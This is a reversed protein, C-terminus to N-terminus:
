RPAETEKAPRNPGDQPGWPTDRRFDASPRRAARAEVDVRLKREGPHWYLYPANQGYWEFVPDGDDDLAKEPTAARLDELARELDTLRLLRGALWARDGKEPVAARWVLLTEVMRRKTGVEEGPPGSRVRETLLSAGIRAAEKLPLDIAPAGADVELAEAFARAQQLPKFTDAPPPRSPDAQERLAVATGTDLGLVELRVVAFLRVMWERDQLAAAAPRPDGRETAEMIEKIARLTRRGEERAEAQDWWPTQANVVGASGALLLLLLGVKSSASARAGM